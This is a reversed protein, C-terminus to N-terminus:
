KYLPRFVHNKLEIGEILTGTELMAYFQCFFEKTLLNRFQTAVAAVGAIVVSPAALVMLCAQITSDHCLFASALRENQLSFPM